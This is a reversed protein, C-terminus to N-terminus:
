SVWVNRQYAVVWKDKPKKLTIFSGGACLSGCYYAVYVLAETRDKNFGVNSLSILQGAGPYRKRLQEGFEVSPNRAFDKADKKTFFVVDKRDAFFERLPTSSKNRLAYSEVIAADAGDVNQSLIDSDVILGGQQTFEDLVITNSKYLDLIASYISKTDEDVLDNATPVSSGTCALSNGSGEDSSVRSPFIPIPSVWAIFYDSFFLASIGIVFTIVAAPFSSVIRKM